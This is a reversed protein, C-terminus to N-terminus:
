LFSFWGPEEFLRFYINDRVLILNLFNGWTLILVLRPEPRASGSLVPALLLRSFFNLFHLSIGNYFNFPFGLLFGLGLGNNSRKLTLDALLLERLDPLEYYVGAGTM